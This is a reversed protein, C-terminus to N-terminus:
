SFDAISKPDHEGPYPKGRFDLMDQSHTAPLGPYGIMRWFVKGVNGGYIPDAFCAQAFLPYVLENFWASLPVHPDVENGTALDDLFTSADAVSLADFSKGFRRQCAQDMAALGVKFFEEPVLPMQYGHQAKGQRWPGHMYLREGKGFGGALQRDIFAALGCDVGAPTLSDAPCMVNVMAEVIAAEDPSLSQYGLAPGPPSSTAGVSTVEGVSTSPAAIATEARSPAHWLLSSVAPIVTGAGAVERLFRRRSSNAQGDLDRWAMGPRRKEITISQNPPDHIKQNSSVIQYQRCNNDYRACIHDFCPSTASREL